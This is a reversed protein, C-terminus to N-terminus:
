LYKALATKLVEEQASTLSRSQGKKTAGLFVLPGCLGFLSPKLGLLLGEENCFAYIKAKKIEKPFYQRPTSEINGGVISQLADLDKKIERAELKGNSFVYVRLM